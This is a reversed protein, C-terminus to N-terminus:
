LGFVDYEWICQMSVRGPDEKPDVGIGIISGATFHQSGSTNFVGIANAADAMSVVVDEVFPEDSITLGSGTHVSVTVNGNQSNEVKALVRVLRGDFPAVMSNTYTANGVNTEGANMFNIFKFVDSSGAEYYHRTVFIQKARFSGSVVGSGTVQLTGRTVLGGGTQVTGSGSIAGTVKVSGAAPELSIDGDVDLTLNATAGVTSDVTTFTTAGAAGVQITFHDTNDASSRIRFDFNSAGNECDVLIGHNFDGGSAKFYAAIAQGSGNTGATADIHAGYVYAGGNDTAHTLTPTCYIGYMLNTGNEATTNDMDINLGYMTNNSTSAGTKDFDINLGTVTAATTDSYNKDLEVGTVGGDSQVHLATAAIAAANNQIVIATQRTGTSSSNDDIYLANGTTLADASINVAKATTISDATINVANNTNEAHTVSLTPKAAAGDGVVELVAAPADTSVGISVADNAGDVFLMHTDNESEVRFDIDVGGENFTVENQTDETLDLFNVGGAQFNIDDDTFNIFTDADGIHVIKDSVGLDTGDFTLNSEVTAEDSDKYTAVGNATSGDWSIGGGGAPEDLVLLGATTVALFSGPGATSGSAIGTATVAGSVNLAGGLFTNGVAQLTGSGSLNRYGSIDKSADLVMAKSAAATGATVGDLVGIEAASITTSDITLSTDCTVTGDFDANGTVNLTGGIFTNGVVELTSSGSITGDVTLRHTPGATGIGVDNGLIAMKTAGATKFLFRNSGHDYDIQGEDNDAVSGFIISGGYANPSQFHIKPKESSELVLVTGGAAAINGASGDQIHLFTEPSATGIGVRGDFYGGQSATLQATIAAVDAAADGLYSSGSVILDGAAITLAPSSGTIIVHGGSIETSGASSSYYSGTSSLATSSGSFGISGTFGISSASIHLPSGGVITTAYITTGYITSGSIEFNTYLASASLDVSCSVASNTVVLRDINNTKFSIQDSSFDIQTDTDDENHIDGLDRTGKSTNYAM